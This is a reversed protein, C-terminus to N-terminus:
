ASSRSLASSGDCRDARCVGKRVDDPDDTIDNIDETGEDAPDDGRAATGIASTVM